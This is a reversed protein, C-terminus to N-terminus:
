PQPARQRGAAEIAAVVAKATKGCRPTFALRLGKPQGEVALDLRTFGLFNKRSKVVHAAQPPLILLLKGPRGLLGEGDFCMLRQGTLAYYVKRPRLAGVIMGGTLVGIAAGYAVSKGLSVSGMTGFGTAQVQEGPQLHPAASEAARYAQRSGM